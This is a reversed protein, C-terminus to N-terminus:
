IKLITRLMVANEWRRRAGRRAPDAQDSLLGSLLQNDYVADAGPDGAPAWLLVDNLQLRLSPTATWSLGLTWEHVDHAGDLVAAKVTNEAGPTAAAYGQPLPAAGAAYGSVSVPDFLAEDTWTRSYRALLELAGLGGGGVPARPKATTWGGNGLQKQEGTVYVSAWVSLSRITGSRRLLEEAARLTSGELLEHQLIVDQYVNELYELSLAAPGLLYHLEVGWRTRSSVTASVRDTVRGDTGLTQETRWRWIATEYNASRLGGTEFRTTPVSMGGWTAQGVLYIGRLAAPGLGRLPQLFLRGVIDKSDDMDGAGTDIDMGAGTFAGLNYTVAGGLLDGWLLVGRDLFPYIPTSSGREIFNVNNDQTVWSSSFPVKMQGARLHLWPWPGVDVWGNRLYPKGSLEPQVRFTLWGLLRGQLEIRARRIDFSWPAGSGEEAQYGRVDFHLNGGVKLQIKGEQAELLFGDKYSAKLGIEARAPRAGPRPFIRRAGARPQPM